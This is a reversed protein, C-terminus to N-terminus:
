QWSASTWSEKPASETNQACRHKKKKKKRTVVKFVVSERPVPKGGGMRGIRGLASWLPVVYVWIAEAWVSYVHTIHCSM